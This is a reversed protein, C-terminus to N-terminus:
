KFTADGSAGVDAVLAASTRRVDPACDTALFVAPHCVQDDHLQLVCLNRRQLESRDNVRGHGESLARPADRIVRVLGFQMQSLSLGSGASQYGTKVVRRV